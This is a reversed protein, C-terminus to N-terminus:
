PYGKIAFIAKLLEQKRASAKAIEDRLPRLYKEDDVEGVVCHVSISSNCATLQNSVLNLEAELKELDTM